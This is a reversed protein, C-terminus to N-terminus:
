LPQGIRRARSVCYACIMYQDCRAGNKSIDWSICIAVLFETAHASLLKKEFLLSSYDKGFSVQLKLGLNLPPLVPTADHLAGWYKRCIM